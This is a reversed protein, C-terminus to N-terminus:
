KKEFMFWHAEPSVTDIKDSELSASGSFAVYGAVMMCELRDGNDDVTVDVECHRPPIESVAVEFFRISDLM